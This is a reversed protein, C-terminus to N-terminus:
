AQGRATGASSCLFHEQVQDQIQPSVVQADGAFSSICTISILACFFLFPRRRSFFMLQHHHIKVDSFAM